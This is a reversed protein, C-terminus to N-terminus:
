APPVIYVSLLTADEQDNGTRGAVPARNNDQWDGAPQGKPGSKRSLPLNGPPAAM